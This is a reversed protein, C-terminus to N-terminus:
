SEVDAAISEHADDYVYDDTVAYAYIVPQSTPALELFFASLFKELALPYVKNAM